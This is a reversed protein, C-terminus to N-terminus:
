NKNSIQGSSSHKIKHESSFKLFNGYVRRSMFLQTVVQSNSRPAFWLEQQCDQSTRVRIESLLWIHVVLHVSSPGSWYCLVGSSSMYILIVNEDAFSDTIHLSQVPVTREGSGSSEQVTKSQGFVKGGLSRRLCSLPGSKLFRQRLLGRRRSSGLRWIHRCYDKQRYCWCRGSPWCFHLMFLLFRATLKTKDKDRAGVQPGGIVFRGSPQLHYVTKDDLYKAPVVAKIM